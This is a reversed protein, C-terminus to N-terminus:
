NIKMPLVNLKISSAAPMTPAGSLFDNLSVQENQSQMQPRVSQSSGNSTVTSPITSHMTGYDQSGFESSANASAALTEQRAMQLDALQAEVSEAMNAGYKEKLRDITSTQRTETGMPVVKLIVASAIFVQLSAKSGIYIKEFHLLPVCTIDVDTLLKWDIPKGNLDTFLTKNNKYSRLKVWINPSKGKVKEGTVEDRPWYVPNKFMGGPRQPDFDHMKVKGKCAGLVKCSQSHIEDMKDLASQIENRTKPDALDLKIMMSFNTKKYPGTKGNNEEEKMRIGTASVVPLEFFLDSIVPEQPTGYNYHLKIENYKITENPKEISMPIPESGGLNSPNFQDFTVFSNM